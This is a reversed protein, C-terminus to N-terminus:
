CDDVLTDGVYSMKRSLIRGPKWCSRAAFKCVSCVKLGCRGEYDEFFCSQFQDVEGIVDEPYPFGFNCFCMVFWVVVM